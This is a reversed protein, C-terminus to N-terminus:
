QEQEQLKLLETKVYSAVGIGGAEAIAKGYNETMLSKYVESSNKDGYAEDGISDGFMHEVMMGIFLSEFDKSVKDIQDKSMNKVAASSASYSGGLINAAVGAEIM